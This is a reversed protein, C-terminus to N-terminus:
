GKKDHANNHLAASAMMAAYREMRKKNVRGACVPCGCKQPGTRSYVAAQWVHGSGCQWWVKQHSNPTVMEPTLTGNLAPHWEAAIGPQVTALDNFGALVKRNACYPCGSGAKARAGVAAQWEHGLACRWWVRRNSYPSLQQPTLPANKTPHWEAAIVPFRSALDSEGPIVQKGACVPCGTGNARSAVSACWEHGKKCRWWVKRRTGASLDRPTLTGNKKPHWEAALSPHTTLLDNEGPLLMRGACVPCGCGSVRTKVMAQWEHGKECVWWVTRHSGLSVQAPTLPANKTPHWGAVLDPRQSALDNEGPWTLKGTCYPCDTNRSTRPYVMAQWEHGHACRWWVKERSGYTLSGPTRKGNKTPHWERLLHLSGTRMCYDYLSERM